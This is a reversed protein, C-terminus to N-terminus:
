TLRWEFTIAKPITTSYRKIISPDVTTWRRMEKIRKMNLVKFGNKHLYEKIRNEITGIEDERPIIEDGLIQGFRVEIALNDNEREIYLHTANLEETLYTYIDEEIKDVDEDSPLKVKITFGEVEEIVSFRGLFILLGGEVQPRRRTVGIIRVKQGENILFRNRLENPITIVLSGGSRRIQGVFYVTDYEWNNGKM